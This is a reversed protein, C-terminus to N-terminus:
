LQKSPLKYNNQLMKLYGWCQIQKVKTMLKKENINHNELNKSQSTIKKDSTIILIM